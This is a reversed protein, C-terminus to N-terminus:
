EHIEEIAKIVKKVQSMTLWELRDIGTIRKVYKILAEQTKNRVKSSAMWMAEIKRLQKPTAYYEKVKDNYRIGLEDYKKYGIRGGLKVILDNAESNSLEKSSTVGYSILIERYTEEDIKHKNKLIHIIKIQEKSAMYESKQEKFYLIFFMQATHPKSGCMVGKRARSVLKMYPILFQLIHM